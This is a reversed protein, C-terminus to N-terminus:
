RLGQGATSGPERPPGAGAHIAAGDDGDGANAGDDAGAEGPRGDQKWQAFLRAAKANAKDEVLALVHAVAAEYGQTDANREAELQRDRALQRQLTDVKELTRVILSMADTAAKVDARALKAAAEDADETCIREATGRLARFYDFQDRMERTMDNLLLRLDEEPAELSKVELLAAKARALITEEDWGGVEAQRHGCDGGDYVSAKPWLGFVQPDFGAFEDM